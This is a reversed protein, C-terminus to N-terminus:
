TLESVTQIRYPNSGSGPILVYAVRVTKLTGDSTRYPTLVTVIPGSPGSSYSTLHPTLFTNGSTSRATLKALLQAHSLQSANYYNAPQTWWNGIDSATLSKAIADYRLIFDTATACAAVDSAGRGQCQQTPTEVTYGGSQLSGSAFTVPKAYCNPGRVRGYSSCAAYASTEDPYPGDGIVWFGPNMGPTLNSDTVYKRPGAAVGDAMARVQGVTWFDKSLSELVVVWGSSGIRSDNSAPAAAQSTSTTTAPAPISGAPAITVTTRVTVPATTATAAGGILGPLVLVGVLVVLVGALVGSLILPVRSTKRPPPGGTVYGASSGVAPPVPLGGPQVGVQQGGFRAAPEEIGSFGYGSATPGYLGSTQPPVVSPSPRYVDEFGDRLMTDDAGPQPAIAGHDPPPSSPWEVTWETVTTSDTSDPGGSGAVGNPAPAGCVPCSRGEVWGGCLSCTAM